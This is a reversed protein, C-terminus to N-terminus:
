LLVVFQELHELYEEITQTSVLACFAPTVDNYQGM